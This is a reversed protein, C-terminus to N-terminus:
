RGASLVVEDGANLGSLVEIHGPRGVRGAQILRRELTGDARKVEVYDLQGIRRVAAIPLCLHAREGPLTELRGFMGEVLRQGGRSAPILLKVIFSHSGPDAQPVIEDVTARDGLLLRLFCAPIVDQGAAHAASKRGTDPEDVEGLLVHEEEAGVAETLIDRIIADRREEGRAGHFRRRLRQDVRRKLGPAPVVHRHYDHSRCAGGLRHRGSVRKEALYDIEYTCLRIEARKLLALRTPNPSYDSNTM